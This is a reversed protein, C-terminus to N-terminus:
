ADFKPLHTVLPFWPPNPLKIAQQIPLLILLYFLYKIGYEDFVEMHGKHIEWEYM